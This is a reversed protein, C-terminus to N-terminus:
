KTKNTESEGQTETERKKDLYNKLFFEGAFVFLPRLNYFIKM